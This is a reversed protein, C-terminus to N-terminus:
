NESYQRAIEKIRAPVLEFENTKDLFFMAGLKRCQERYYEGAYNTLMIVECLSGSIKMRKLIDMGNKEPLQIDLLILDPKKDLLAFTEDYSHAIHITSIDEVEKLLCLMRQVFHWNDDVILVSLKRKTMVYLTICLKCM